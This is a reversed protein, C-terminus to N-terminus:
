VLESLFRYAPCLLIGDRDKRDPGDGQYVQVARVEPFRIKLYRLSRSISKDNLKCEVFLTPRGNETVVFDVERRDVDRFYRLEVERAETDQLFHCWKMLHCAVLNEFRPGPEPVLCWDVHYHKAEKKVARIHPAGFPYIRFVTYLNELMTMWRSVTQHAVQLDERLANLSLPSGVLDPLRLAMREINGLDQVNELDALDGTIVRSRYDRSWRRTEKESQLSFPEPFCGYTMLDDITSPLPAALEALSLPWLRYFHYRGQLSDGGRRYHDLRASGTVLISIEDGRKDYLGKVVQRWRSFKHIEDLILVGSAAPFRELLIQERDEAADWNLYREDVSAGTGACLHKAMTTKGSQRPGGVFVMKRELDAIVPKEIYRPIYVKM